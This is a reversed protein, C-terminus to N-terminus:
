VVISVSMRVKSLRLARLILIMSGYRSNRCSLAAVSTLLSMLPIQYERHNEFTTMSTGMDQIMYLVILVSSKLWVYPYYCVKM